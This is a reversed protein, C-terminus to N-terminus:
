LRNKNVAQSQRDIVIFLVLRPIRALFHDSIEEVESLAIGTLFSVGHDAMILMTIVQKKRTCENKRNQNKWTDLFFRSHYINSLSQTNILQKADQFINRTTYLYM